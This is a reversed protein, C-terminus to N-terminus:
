CVKQVVLLGCNLYFPGYFFCSFGSQTFQIKMNEIKAKVNNVEHWEIIVADIKKLLGSNYLSDIIEYEAGECDIKAIYKVQETAGLIPKLVETVNKILVSVVEGSKSNNVIGMYGKELANYYFQESRNSSGLGFHFPQIKSAIEPNQEFNLMAHDFTEKFPEFAYVKKVNSQAAFYLSALGINMGIDIVEVSGPVTFNYANHFYIEEFVRLDTETKLVFKQTRNFGISVADNEPIIIVLGTESFGKFFRKYHKLFFDPNNKSLEVNMYKFLLTGVSTIIVDNIPIQYKILYATWFSFKFNKIYRLMQLFNNM